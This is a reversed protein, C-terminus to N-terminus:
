LAFSTEVVEMKCICFTIHLYVTGHTVLWISLLPLSPIHLWGRAESLRPRFSHPCSSPSYLWCPSASFTQTRAYHRGIHATDLPFALLLGISWCVSHGSAWPQCALFTGVGGDDSKTVVRKASDVTLLNLISPKFVDDLAETM